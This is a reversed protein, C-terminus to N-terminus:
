ARTAKVQDYLERFAAEESTGRFTIDCLAKLVDVLIDHALNKVQLVQEHQDNLRSAAAKCSEVSRLDLNAHHILDNRELLLDLLWREFFVPQDTQNKELFNQFLQGLTKRKYEKHREDFGDLCHLAGEHHMFPLLEKLTRETAQYLLVNRGILRQVEAVAQAHNPAIM